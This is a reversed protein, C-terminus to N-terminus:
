CWKTAHNTGRIMSEELWVPVLGSADSGGMTGRMKSQLLGAAENISEQSVHTISCDHGLDEVTTTDGLKHKGSMLISHQQFLLLWCAFSMRLHCIRVHVTIRPVLSERRGLGPRASYDSEFSQAASAKLQLKTTASCWDGACNRPWASLM